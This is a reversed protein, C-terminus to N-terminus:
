RAPTPFSGPPPATSGTQSYVTGSVGPAPTPESISSSPMSAPVWGTSGDMPMGGSIVQGNMVTGQYMPAGMYSTGGPYMSTSGGGSCGSCGSSPAPMGEGMMPAAGYGM